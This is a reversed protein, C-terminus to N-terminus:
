KYGSAQGENQYEVNRETVVIDQAQLDSSLIIKYRGSKTFIKENSKKGRIYPSGEATNVDLKVTKVTDFHDYDFVSFQTSGVLTINARYSLLYNTSDPGIIAIEKEHPVTMSITLTDGPKLKFPSCKLNNEKAFSMTIGIFLVFLLVYKKMTVGKQTVGVVCAFGAM